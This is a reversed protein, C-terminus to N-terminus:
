GQARVGHRAGARDRERGAPAPGSAVVLPDIWLRSIGLPATLARVAPEALRIWRQGAGMAARLRPATTFAPVVREGSGLRASRLAVAGKGEHVPVFLVAARGPRPIDTDM